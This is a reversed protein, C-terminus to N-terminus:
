RLKAAMKVDNFLQDAIAAFQCNGDGMIKTKEKFGYLNLREQLILSKEETTLPTFTEMPKTHPKESVIRDKTPSSREGPKTCFAQKDPFTRKYYTGDKTDHYQNATTWFLLEQVTEPYCDANLLCGSLPIRFRHPLHSPYDTCFSQSFNPISPYLEVTPFAHFPYCM